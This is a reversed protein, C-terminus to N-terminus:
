WFWLYHEGATELEIDVSEKTAEIISDSRVQGGRGIEGRQVTPPYDPNSSDYGYFRAVIFGRPKRGLGHKITFVEPFTILQGGAEFWVLSGDIFPFNKNFEDISDKLSQMFRDFPALWWAGTFPLEPLRFGKCRLVQEQRRPAIAM